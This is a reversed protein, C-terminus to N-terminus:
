RQVAHAPGACQGDGWCVVPALVAGGAIALWLGNIPAKAFGRGGARRAVGGVTSIVILEPM